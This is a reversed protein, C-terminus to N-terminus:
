ENTDEVYIHFHNHGKTKAELLASDAQNYLDIVDEQESALSVGVSISIKAEKFQEDSKIAEDIKELLATSFYEVDSETMDQMVMVFEDGGFRYVEGVEEEIFSQLVQAITRLLEDSLEYGLFANISKFKDIDIYFLAVSSQKKDHLKKMNIDFSARNRLGTLQDFYALQVPKSLVHALAYAIGGSLIMGILFQILFMNLNKKLVKDLIHHSYQIEVIKKQTSSEDYDSKYPIYRYTYNDGEETQEIELIENTERVEEFADRRISPKNDTNTNGYPMGGYNLVYLDEIIPFQGVVDDAVSEFNFNQFLVENKLGYGLEILYKNDKTAIYSFKKAEGTLQERDIGEIFIGGTKRREHLVENLSVCCVAFEIGVEDDLNSYIIENEDNLIYIDMGLEEAIKDFDWKSFDSEKDYKKQLDESYEEMKIGIERDMYHYARDISDLAYLVTDTAQSVQQENHEVAEKKLRQYDLILITGMLLVASIFLVIFLKTRYILKM